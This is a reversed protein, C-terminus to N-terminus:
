DARLGNRSDQAFALSTADFLDPSPEDEEKKLIRIRGTESFEWRPQALQSLYREIHPIEPNIFLCKHPSIKGTPKPREPRTQNEPIPDELDHKHEIGNLVDGDYLLRRTNNARLRLTWAMQANRRLFQEQNTVKYSYRREKGAVEWGFGTPVVKYKRRGKAALDAFTRRAEAGIGQRDYSVVKVRSEEAIGHVRLTSQTVTKARWEEASMICSGSRVVAANKDAGTDAVDFGLESFAGPGPSHKKWADVCEQLIGYPLIRKEKGEDFPQGEWVHMYLEPDEQELARREEELVQPFWPNDRWCAFAIIDDERPKVVFRQFVWSGRDDPNWSFWLESKSVVGDTSIFGEARITPVLVEATKHSLREAEEVWCIRVREWGRINDPNREIGTFFFYAGNKGYIENKLIVFKHSLGLDKIANEIAAKSSVRISSQFERCCAYWANPHKLSDLVILRAFTTTRGAGRGGYGCKYRGPAAFPYAWEPLEIRGTPNSNAAELPSPPTWLGM